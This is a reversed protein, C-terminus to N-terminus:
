CLRSIEPPSSRPWPYNRFYIMLTAALGGPLRAGPSYAITVSVSQRYIMTNYAYRSKIIIERPPRVCPDAGVPCSPTDEPNLFNYSPAFRSYYLPARSLPCQIFPAYRLQCRAQNPVLLDATWIQGGRNTIKFVKKKESCTGKQDAKPKEGTLPGDGIKENRDNKRAKQSM